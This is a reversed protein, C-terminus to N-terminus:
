RIAITVGPQSEADGVRLLLPAQLDSQAGTPIRVDIHVIGAVQDPAEIVSIVQAPVGGVYATVPRATSAPNSTTEGDVLLSELTGFGTGYVSVISGATTPNSASNLSHDPNLVVAGGTGLGNQTFIAPSEPAAWLPIAVTAHSEGRVELLRPPAMNLRIPVTANVQNAGIYIIPATMGDIRIQPESPFSGFLTVIEGPSIPGPLLSAANLVGRVSLFQTAPGRGVAITAVNGYVSVSNGAFDTAALNVVQWHLLGPRALTSITAFVRVLEGASLTSQNMGVILCRLRRSGVWGTYLVKASMGIQAGPVVLLRVTEDSVLDFQIGSVTQEGPSFSISASITEGAKGTLDSISLSAGSAVAVLVLALPVLPARM